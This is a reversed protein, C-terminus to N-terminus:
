QQYPGHIAGSLFVNERGSFEPHFGAGLELLAAVRGEVEVVGETPQLIGAALQLSTSKGSGNAGILCLTEGHGAEFSVEQLAWKGFSNSAQKDLLLSKFYAYPRLHAAYRKSVCHFAIKSLPFM